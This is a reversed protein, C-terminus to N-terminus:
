RITSDEFGQCLLNNSVSIVDIWCINVLYRGQTLVSVPNFTLCFTYSVSETRLNWIYRPHIQAPMFWCYFLTRRGRQWGLTSRGHPVFALSDNHSCPAPLKTSSGKTARCPLQSRSSKLLCAPQRSAHPCITFAWLLLDSTGSAGLASVLKALVSVPFLPFTHDRIWLPLLLKYKSYTKIRLSSNWWGKKGLRSSKKLDKLFESHLVLLSSSVNAYQKIFKLTSERINDSKITVAVGPPLYPM